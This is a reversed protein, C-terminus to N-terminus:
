EASVHHPKKHTKAPKRKPEKASAHAHPKPVAPVSVPTTHISPASSSTTAPIDIPSPIAEPAPLQQHSLLIARAELNALLRNGEVDGAEAEARTLSRIQFRAARGRLEGPTFPVRANPDTGRRTYSRGLLSNPTTPAPRARVLALVCALIVFAFATSFRMTTPCTYHSFFIVTPPTSLHSNCLPSCSYTTPSSPNTKTRIPDSM